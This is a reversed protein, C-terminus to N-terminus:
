PARRISIDVPASGRGRRGRKWLPFELEIDSAGGDVTGVSAAYVTDAMWEEM